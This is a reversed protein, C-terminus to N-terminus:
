WYNEEITKLLIMLIILISVHRPGEAFTNVRCIEFSHIEMNAIESFIIVIENRYLVMICEHLANYFACSTQM